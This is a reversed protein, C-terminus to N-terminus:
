PLRLPNPKPKQVVPKPKVVRKKAAVKAVKNMEFIKASLEKQLMILQDVKNEFAKEEDVGDDVDDNLSDNM